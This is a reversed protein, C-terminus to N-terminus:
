KKKAELAFDFTKGGEPVDASLTTKQDSSYKPPLHEVGQAGAEPGEALPSGDPMAYKSIIVKYKGVPCGERGNLDKITYAGDEGTAGYCPRGPGMFTVSAGKLPEGNLTVKGSVPVVGPLDEDGGGCGVVAVVTFLLSFICMKSITIM